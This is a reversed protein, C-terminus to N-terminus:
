FGGTLVTVEPRNPRLVIIKKVRSVFDDETENGARFFKKGACSLVKVDDGFRVFIIRPEFSDISELKRLRNELNM